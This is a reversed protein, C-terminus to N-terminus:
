KASPNPSFLRGYGIERFQFHFGENKYLSIATENSMGTFLSVSNIDLAQLCHLGTRLVATGLGMGQFDPHVGLPEISGQQGDPHLWGICFAAIRGDPAMIVMDLDPRYLPMALIQSRWNQRM